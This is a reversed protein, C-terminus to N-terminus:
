PNPCRVAFVQQALRANKRGSIQFREFVQNAIGALATNAWALIFMIVTTIINVFTGGLKGMQGAPDMAEDIEQQDLKSALKEAADTKGDSKVLLQIVEPDKRQKLENELPTSGRQLDPNSYKSNAGRRLLLDVIEARNDGKGRSTVIWLPTRYGSSLADVKAGKDLLLRVVEAHGNRVALALPTLGFTGNDNDMSPDDINHTVLYEDLSASTLAGTKIDSFFSM